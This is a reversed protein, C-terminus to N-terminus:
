FAKLHLACSERRKGMDLTEPSCSSNKVVTGRSRSDQTDQTGMLTAESPAWPIGTTKVPWSDTLCVSCGRAPPREPCAKQQGCVLVTNVLGKIVAWKGQIKAKSGGGQSYLIRSVQLHPPPLICQRRGTKGIAEPVYIRLSVTVSGGIECRGDEPPKHPPWPISGTM